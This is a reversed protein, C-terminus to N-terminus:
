ATPQRISFDLAGIARRAKDDFDFTVGGLKVSLTKAEAMNHFQEYPIPFVMREGIWWKGPVPSRIASRNSSFHIEKGDVVFVVYLDTNLRRAKVVSILEFNVTKPRVFNDLLPYSISFALSHYRDKPGSIPISKARVTTVGTRADTVREALPASDQPAGFALLSFVFSIILFRSM